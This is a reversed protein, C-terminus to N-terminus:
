VDRESVVVLMVSGATADTRVYKAGEASKVGVVIAIIHVYKHVVVNRAGAAYESISACMLVVACNVTEEVATTDAYRRDVAAQVSTAGGETFVYGIVVVHEVNQCNVAIFVSRLGM